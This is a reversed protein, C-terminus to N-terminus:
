KDISVNLEKEYKNSLYIEIWQYFDFIGKQFDGDTLNNIRTAEAIIPREISQIKQLYGTEKQNIVKSLNIYNNGGAYSYSFCKSKLMLGTECIPAKHDANPKLFSPYKNYGAMWTPIAVTTLPFGLVTWMMTREPKIHQNVGVILMSSSTSHRPIFDVLCKFNTFSDNLPTENWLNTSTLSHKLSRSINFLINETTFSSNSAMEFLAAEATQYRIYGLGDKLPGSFSHNTRVLFGHPAVIADNVDFKKFSFNGTEFYAAGGSADVVGFNADAGLPKPLSKLLEEFDDVSKCQMLAKKMIVGELDRISSTDNPSTNMNYAASNIIAFGASNYGGWVMSDRGKTGDVVAIYKYKGDDFYALANSLMETDRQKFLLPRGDSTYKGSVIFTTCGYAVNFLSYLTLCTSFFYKM